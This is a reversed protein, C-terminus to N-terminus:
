AKWRIIRRGKVMNNKKMFFLAEHHDHRM